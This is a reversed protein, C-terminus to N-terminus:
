CRREMESGFMSLNNVIKKRGKLDGLKETSKVSVDMEDGWFFEGFFIGILGMKWGFDSSKEYIWFNEGTGLGIWVRYSWGLAFFGKFFLPEESDCYIFIDNRGFVM